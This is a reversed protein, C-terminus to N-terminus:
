YRRWSVYIKRVFDTISALKPIEGRRYVSVVGPITYPDALQEATLDLLEGKWLLGEYSLQELVYIESTSLFEKGFENQMIQAIDLWRCKIIRPNDFTKKGYGDNEPNGWYVANDVCAGKMVRNVLSM